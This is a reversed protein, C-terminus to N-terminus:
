HAIIIYSTTFYQNFIRSKEEIIRNKELKLYRELSM